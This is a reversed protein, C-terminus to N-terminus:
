LGCDARARALLEFYRLNNVQAANLISDMVELAILDGNKPVVAPHNGSLLIWCHSDEAICQYNALELLRKFVRPPVPALAPM